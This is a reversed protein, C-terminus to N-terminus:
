WDGSYLDCMKINHELHDKLVYTNYKHELKIKDFFGTIEIM